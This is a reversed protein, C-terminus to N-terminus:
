VVCLLLPWILLSEASVSSLHIKEGFLRCSLSSKNEQPHSLHNCIRSKVYIINLLNCNGLSCRYNHNVWRITIVAILKMQWPEASNSCQSISPLRFLIITSYSGGIIVGGEWFCCKSSGNMCLVVKVLVLLVLHSIM